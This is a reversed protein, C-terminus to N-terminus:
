KRNATLSHSIFNEQPSSGMDIYFSSETDSPQPHTMGGTPSPKHLAIYSLFLTMQSSYPAIHQKTSIVEAPTKEECV